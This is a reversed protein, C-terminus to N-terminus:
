YEVVLKGNQCTVSKPPRAMSCDSTINWKKNYTKELETHKAALNKLLSVDISATYPIYTKPGGCAKHGVPVTLIEVNDGCKSTEALNKIQSMLQQLEKEDEVKSQKKEKKCGITLFFGFLLLYIFYLNLKNM